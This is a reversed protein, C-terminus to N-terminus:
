NTDYHSKTLNFRRRESNCVTSVIWNVKVEQDNKKTININKIQLSEKPKIVLAQTTLTEMQNEIM